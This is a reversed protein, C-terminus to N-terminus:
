PRARGAFLAQVMVALVIIAGGVFTWLTPVEDFVLLVWLPGLVVEIAALV